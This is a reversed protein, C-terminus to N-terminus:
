RADVLVLTFEKASSMLRMEPQICRLAPPGDVERKNEQAFRREGEVCGLAM